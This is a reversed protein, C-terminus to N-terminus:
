RVRSHRSATKPWRPSQAFYRSVPSAYPWSTRAPASTACSHKLYAVYDGLDFHGADSPSLVRMLGTPSISMTYPYCPEVTPRLLTAFHGSLPAM